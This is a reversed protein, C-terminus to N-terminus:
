LELQAVAKEANPLAFEALPPINSGEARVTQIDEIGIFGLIRCLYPEAFDWPKWPGETFVGGSAVILIARRVKALGQVGADTYAFTRGPRVVFDIWAKLASPISFNWMPTAIVLLDSSQLEETCQDSLRASAHVALTGEPNKSAIAKITGADPHPITNEALDRYVIRAEPFKARLRLALTRAVARSLSEPGRPSAEVILIQKM